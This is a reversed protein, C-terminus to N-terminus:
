ADWGTLYFESPITSDMLTATFIAAPRVCSWDADAADSFSNYDAAGETACPASSTSDLGVRLGKSLKWEEAIDVGVLMVCDPKCEPPSRINSDKLTRSADASAGSFGVSTAFSQVAYVGAPIDTPLGSFDAQPVSTIHHCGEQLEVIRGCSYCQQWHNDKALKLTAQLANDAPCGDHEHRTNKCTVCTSHACHPCLAHDAGVGINSPAIFKLCSTNSCYVKHQTNQEITAEQFERMEEKSLTNSVVEQPVPEGCCRPPFFTLERDMIGGMIFRKLCSACYQHQCGLQVIDRHAFEETCVMCQTAERIPSDPTTVQDNVGSGLLGAVGTDANDFLEDDSCEEDSQDSFENDSDYEDDSFEDDSVEASSVGGMDLRNPSPDQAVEDQGIEADPTTMEDNLSSESPPPVNPDDENAAGGSVQRRFLNGFFGRIRGDTRENRDIEADPVPAGLEPEEQFSMRVAVRHDEEAQTELHVLEAIVQADTHVAIAISRAMQFDKLPQLQLQMDQLASTLAAIEGEVSESQHAQTAM